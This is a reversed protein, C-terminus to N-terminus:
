LIEVKPAIVPSSMFKLLLKKQEENYNHSCQHDEAVRHTPCYYKGCRCAFSTLGLKHKCSDFQCRKPIEKQEM